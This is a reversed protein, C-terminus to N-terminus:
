SIVCPPPRPDVLTDRSMKQGKKFLLKTMQATRIYEIFLKYKAFHYFTVDCRPIDRIIQIARIVDTDAIIM